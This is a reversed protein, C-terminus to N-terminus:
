RQLSGARLPRLADLFSRHAFALTLVVAVAVFCVVRAALRKDMGGGPRPGCRKTGERGATYQGAVGCLLRARAKSFSKKTESM